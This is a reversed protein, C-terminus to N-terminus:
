KAASVIRIIDGSKLEATDKIRMKTRADIAHLFGKGIDTHVRFALDRPNSGKKMLFADPLVRGKGDTYHTEDEVPYVVILDLLSFIAHNVAQQVGTGDFRKMVDRIMALGKKQQPTMAVSEIESFDPDGPLYRILGASAANRLALEGAATARIMEVPLTNLMDETAMDAKNLLVVMPKNITVLADSLRCLADADARFLDVDTADIASRIDEASISLGALAEALHEILAPEKGQAARTLRPLHKEIIGSVWMAMEYRLFRVDEMPDHSGLDVPNGEADTGGSADVVQIIADASRLHDLFQNGLGKGLHADPVLGAVDVLGVGIFRFGDKCQDCQLGLDRCPCPVRAYAVGHNADITTFPYNAIEVDALTAAKFFTSKGCNPKGALALTIM